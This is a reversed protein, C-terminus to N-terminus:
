LFAVISLVELEIKIIAIAQAVPATVDPFPVCGLSELSSLEVRGFLPPSL